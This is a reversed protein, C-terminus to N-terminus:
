DLLKAIKPEYLELLQGFKTPLDGLSMPNVGKVRASGDKALYGAGPTGGILVASGPVIGGGLIRDLEAIGTRIREEESAQIQTIPQPAEVDATLRKQDASPTPRPKEEVMSDWEGCEFCRGVWKRSQAGCNQCVFISTPKPM